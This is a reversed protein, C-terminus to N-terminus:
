VKDGIRHVVRKLSDMSQTVNRCDHQAEALAEADIPKGDELDHLFECIDSVRNGISDIAGDLDRTKAKMNSVEERRLANTDAFIIATSHGTRSLRACPTLSSGADGSMGCARRDM